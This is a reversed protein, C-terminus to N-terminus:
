KMNLTWYPFRPHSAFRWCHHGDTAVGGYRLLHKLGETLSVPRQHGAYTPDGTGYPFLAPFSLTALHPTHFENIAAGSIDPWDLPDDGHLAACIANDETSQQTPLPLFSSSDIDSVTDDDTCDDSCQSQSSSHEDTLVDDVTLQKAPISDHKQGLLQGYVAQTNALHQFHHVTYLLLM